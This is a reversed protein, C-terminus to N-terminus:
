ENKAKNMAAEILRAILDEGVYSTHEKEEKAPRGRPGKEKKEEKVEKKPRGRGVVKKEKERKKGEVDEKLIYNIAEEENINYRKSLSIIKKEIEKNIEHMLADEIKEM